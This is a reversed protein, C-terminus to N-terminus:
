GNLGYHSKKQLFINIAKALKNDGIIISLMEFRDDSHIM